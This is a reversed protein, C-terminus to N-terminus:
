ETGNREWSVDRFEEIKEPSIIKKNDSLWFVVNDCWEYEKGDEDQQLYDYRYRFKVGGGHWNQYSVEFEVKVQSVLEWLVEIHFDRKMRPLVTGLERFFKGNTDISGHSGKINWNGKVYLNYAPSTGLNQVVFPFREKTSLSHKERNWISEKRELNIWPLHKLENEEEHRLRTLRTEFTYWIVAILTAAVLVNSIQDKIILCHFFGLWLVAIEVVLFLLIWRWPIFKARKRWRNLEM